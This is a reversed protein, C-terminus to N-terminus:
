GDDEKTLLSRGMALEEQTFEGLCAFLVLCGAGLAPVKLLVLAGPTPWWAAAAFALASVVVSRAATTLPPRIRSLHNVSWLTWSAGLFAVTTTVLAAGAAGYRPILLIHGLLALPVLPASLWLTRGPNGQATLIASGAPIVMLVFSGPVLTSLSRGASEFDRGFFLTIIEGASGAVIAAIPMVGLVGRLANAGIQRATDAEGRSLLRTLTSLLLPVFALTLLSPLLSLNQAAGYIGAQETTAGLRRLAFLDLRTYLGLCVSSLFLPLGLAWLPRLDPLGFLSLRVYRRAVLLELASAGITGLIAGGVSLGGGVFAIILVMRSLWRVASLNASQAFDGRGILVNKHAQALNFLPIDLAFLALYKALRPEGLWLAVPTALLLLLLMVAISALMQQRVLGTAVRTWDGAESVLQITPRGFFSTLSWEVWAVSTASLVLFGYGEPGLRRTLFAATVLATAPFLLEAVLSRLM